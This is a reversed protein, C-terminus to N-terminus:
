PQSPGAEEIANAKPNEDIISKPDEQEPVVTPEEWPRRPQLLIVEEEQNAERLNEEM